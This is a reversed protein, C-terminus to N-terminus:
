EVVNNIMETIINVIDLALAANTTCLNVDYDVINCNEQEDENHCRFTKRPLFSLHLNYEHQVQAPEKKKEKTDAIVTEEPEREIFQAVPMRVKWKGTERDYFIFTDGLITETPWGYKDWMYDCIKEAMWYLDHVTLFDTKVAEDLLRKYFNVANEKTDFMISGIITDYDMSM